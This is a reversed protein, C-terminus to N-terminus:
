VQNLQFLKASLAERLGVAVHALSGADDTVAFPLLAMRSLGAPVTQAVPGSDVATSPGFRAGVLTGSGVAIAAALGVAWPWGRRRGFRWAPPGAIPPRVDLASRAPCHAATRTLAPWPM